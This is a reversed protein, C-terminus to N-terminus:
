MLLIDKLTMEEINIQYIDSFTTFVDKNIMVQNMGEINIKTKKLKKDYAFLIQNSKHYKLYEYKLLSHLM